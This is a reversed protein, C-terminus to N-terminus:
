NREHDSPPPSSPPSSGGGGDNPQLNRIRQGEQFFPLNLGYMRQGRLEAPLQEQINGEESESDTENEEESDNGEDGLMMQNMLTMMEVGVEMVM